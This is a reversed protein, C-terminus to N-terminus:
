EEIRCFYVSYEQVKEFGVRAAVAVSPLNATWSDWHPTIQLSLSHQVFASATLRAFGRNMYAEDTEIGIGCKGTSVYEATCWCVIEETDESILCFGFGNELFPSISGWMLVIEAKLGEVGQLDSAELLSRDIQRLRFGEPADYQRPPNPNTYALFTRPYQKLRAGQFLSEVCREWRLDTYALKFVGLRRQRMDPLLSQAILAGLQQNFSEDEANGGLFMGHANDWIFATQPQAADDVWVSALTYGAIISDSVLALHPSGEFLPAMQSYQDQSLLKMM